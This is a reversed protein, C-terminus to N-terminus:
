NDSEDNDEKKSSHLTSIIVNHLFVLCYGFWLAFIFACIIKIFM